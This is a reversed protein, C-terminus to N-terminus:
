SKDVHPYTILPVRDVLQVIAPLASVIINLDSCHYRLGKEHRSLM